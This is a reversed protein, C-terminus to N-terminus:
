ATAPRYAGDSNRVTYACILSGTGATLTTAAFTYTLFLDATGTNALTAFAAATLTLAGASATASTLTASAITTSGLKVTITITGTGTGTQNGNSAASANLDTVSYTITRSASNATPNDSTSHFTVARLMAQYDSVTTSGTFTLVGSSSDYSATVGGLLSATPISLTDGTAFGVTISVTADTAISTDDVFAITLAPSIAAAAANETYALNAGADVVPADNVAALNITVTVTNSALDGDKGAITFTKAGYANAVPVYTLKALDAVAIVQNATVDVGDLKLTGTAPLGLIQISSLATSEPDTYASTFDTATFSVTTDETGNVSVGTMTPADNAGTITIALVAIDSYTGNDTTYNFSETLTAGSALAQVTANSQDVQYTFSGDSNLTLTGYTGVLAAGVTGATGSGEVSGL